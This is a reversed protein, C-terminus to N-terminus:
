ARRHDVPMAILIGACRGHPHDGPWGERRGPDRAATLRALAAVDRAPRHARAAHPRRPRAAGREGRPHGLLHGAGDGAGDSLWVAQCAASRPFFRWREGPAVYTLVSTRYVVLTADAPAQAALAPLDTLLDGRHLMPPDRRAAAIALALRDQRDGEGPWVLCSLWRM